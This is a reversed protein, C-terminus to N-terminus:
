GALRPWGLLRACLGCAFLDFFSLLKQFHLLFVIHVGHARIVTTMECPLSDLSKRRSNHQPTCALATRALYCAGCFKGLRVFLGVIHSLALRPCNDHGDAFTSRGEIIALVHQGTLRSPFPHDASFGLWFSGPFTDITRRRRIDGVRAM